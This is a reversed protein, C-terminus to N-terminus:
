VGMNSPLDTVFMHGAAHTIAFPVKSDMLVAQPTVGCAHFVPVEDPGLDIAEGWDPRELDFVGIVDPRGICVPGGHAHPYKSTIEVHRSIQLAPIPKMSVVVNGHLKGASRCKLSTRYMPVNKGQEASRLPIGAEMLAGDYSFSCGILFAVSNEPWFSTADTVEQELKGNRYIAYKPVDTRLDALPAVGWPHPSGVDCVDILPCSKPNRQCFLLFDFATQGQPLIVVNCQLFGPCAGNTPGTLYGDRVKQRFARPLAPDPSKFEPAGHWELTPAEQSAESQRTIDTPAKWPELIDLIKGGDEVATKKMTRPRINMNPLAAQLEQLEHETFTNAPSGEQPQCETLVSRLLEGGFVKKENLSSKPAEMPNNDDLDFHVPEGTFNQNALLTNRSSHSRLLYSRRPITIQSCFSALLQFLVYPPHIKHACSTRIEM